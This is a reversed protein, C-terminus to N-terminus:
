ESMAVSAPNREDRKKAQKKLLHCHRRIDTRDLAFARGIGHQGHCATLRGARGVFGSALLVTMGKRLCRIVRCCRRDRRGQQRRRGQLPLVVRGINAPGVAAGAVNIRSRGCRRQGDLVARELNSSRSCREHHRAM